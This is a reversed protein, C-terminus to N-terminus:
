ASQKSGYGNGGGSGEGTVRELIAGQMMYDRNEHKRGM